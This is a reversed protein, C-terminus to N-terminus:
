EFCLGVQSLDLAKMNWVAKVENWTACPLADFLHQLQDKQYCVLSTSHMARWQYNADQFQWAYVGSGLEVFPPLPYNKVKDQPQKGHFLCYFGYAKTKKLYHIIFASDIQENIIVQEEALFVYEEKCSALLTRVREVFDEEKGECLYADFCADEVYTKEQESLVGTPVIYISGIGKINNLVHRYVVSLAECDHHFIIVITAQDQVKSSLCSTDYPRRMKLPKYRKKARVINEVHLQLQMNKKFDNHETMCNYVYLVDPVFAVRGAAMELMPFMFVLDCAVPFFVGHWLFDQLPIKKFLGAYFTRLASTIWRYERYGHSCVLLEPLARSQGISKDPLKIYQGYTLWVNPDQYLTNLQSLVHEHALWDDGDLNIVIEDDSCLHVAQYHNFLARRRKNNKILTCQEEKGSQSIMQEVHDITDDTSADDIYIVRYNTYTQSFVSSLNRSVWESNNYSPIIVVFKKDEYSHMGLVGCFFLLSAMMKICQVKM